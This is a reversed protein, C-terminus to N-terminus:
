RRWFGPTLVALLTFIELRGLVMMACLVLKGAGPVFAYNRTPGVESLGPGVSGLASISASMASELDPMMPSLILTGAAFILLYAFFFVLVATVTEDAIAHRGLKVVRTAQPRFTRALYIYLARFLVVYRFVKIGGSTSGASGGVFCLVFLLNRALPPYQDYDDTAFGTTTLVALVQFIGYRFADVWGGHRDVIAVSVVISAVFVVGVYARFESDRFVVGRRGQLLWFYLIFNVGGLFMFFSITWDVVPSDYGGVSANMSSYGGTAVTSMAHGIADPFSLGGVFLLLLALLTTLGAYIKWLAISTERIRPQVSETIPGTVEHRFLMKGGVGLSPLVAVFLVMIGMGGLWHSLLRYMHMSTTLAGEIEMLATAGTTTFGSFSEFLADPVSRFVGELLYPLAGFVPIVVWALTVLLLADRRFITPSCARASWRLGGGFLACVVATLAFSRLSGWEELVVAFAAPFLFTTSFALLLGGILRQVNRLNV